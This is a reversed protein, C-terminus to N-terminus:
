VWIFEGAHRKDEYLVGSTTIKIGDCSPSHNVPCARFVWINSMFLTLDHECTVSSPMEDFCVKM